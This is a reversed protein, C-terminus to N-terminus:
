LQLGPHVEGGRAAGAGLEPLVREHGIRPHSDAIGRRYLQSPPPIGGGQGDPRPAPEERHAPTEGGRRCADARHWPRVPRRFVLPPISPPPYLHPPRPLAPPQNGDYANAPGPVKLRRVPTRIPGVM